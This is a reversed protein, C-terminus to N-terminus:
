VEYKTKLMSGSKDPSANDVVYIQYSSSETYKKISDVCALTDDYTNYNLIVVAFNKM